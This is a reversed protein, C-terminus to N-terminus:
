CILFRSWIYLRRAAAAKSAAQGQGGARAPPGPVVEALKRLIGTAAMGEPILSAEVAMTPGSEM